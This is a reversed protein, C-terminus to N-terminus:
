KDVTVVQYDYSYRYGDGTTLNGDWPDLIKFDRLKTGKGDYDYFTVYHHDSNGVAVLGVCSENKDLSTKIAKLM